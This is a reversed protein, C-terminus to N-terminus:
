EMAENRESLSDRLVLDDAVGSSYSSHVMQTVEITGSEDLLFTERKGARKEM